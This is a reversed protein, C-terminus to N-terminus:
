AAGTENNHKSWLVDRVAQRHEHLAALLRRKNFGERVLGRGYLAVAHQPHLKFMPHNRLQALQAAQWQRYCIEAFRWSGICEDHRAVCVCRRVLLERMVSRVRCIQARHRMTIRDGVRGLGCVFMVEAHQEKVIAWDAELEETTFNHARIAIGYYRRVVDRMEKSMRFKVAGTNSERENKM